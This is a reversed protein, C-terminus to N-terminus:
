RIIIKGKSEASDIHRLTVVLEFDSENATINLNWRNPDGTATVYGDVRIRDQLLDISQVEIDTNGEPQLEVNYQRAEGCYPRLAVRVTVWEGAHEASWCAALFPDHIVLDEIDFHPVTLCSYASLERILPHQSSETILLEIKCVAVPDFFDIKKHGIATGRTLEQWQKGHLGRLVYSRVAEGESLNEMIVVHDITVDDGLDLVVVSGEGSTSAIPASFRRRIEDGFEGARVADPEPILGSRDPNSNLLLVAGHGVSRYYIEMLKDLSKLSDETDPEWMWYHDRITTDVELAAVHRRQSRWPCRNGYWKEWRGFRCYEM